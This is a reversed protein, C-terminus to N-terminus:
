AAEFEAVMEEALQERYESISKGKKEKFKAELEELQSKSDGSAMQSVAGEGGVGVVEAAVRDTVSHRLRDLIFLTSEEDLGSDLLTKKLRDFAAFPASM